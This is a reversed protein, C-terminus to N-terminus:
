EIKYSKLVALTATTNTKKTAIFVSRKVIKKADAIM